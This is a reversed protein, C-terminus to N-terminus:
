DQHEHSPCDPVRVESQRVFGQAPKGGHHPLVPDMPAFDSSVPECHKEFFGSLDAPNGSTDTFTFLISAPVGQPSIAVNGQEGVFCGRYLSPSTEIHPSLM